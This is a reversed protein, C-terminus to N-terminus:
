RPSRASSVEHAVDILDVASHEQGFLGVHYGLEGAVVEVHTTSPHGCRRECGSWHVPLTRRGSPTAGLASTADHRVDTLSRGCGPRGACATAGAWPSGASTVFGIAGLQALIAATAPQPVHPIVVGRWPTLRVSRGGLGAVATVARWQDASVRGLQSLVSLSTRGARDQVVGLQPPGPDPNTATLASGPPVADTDQLRRIILRPADPLEHVRWVDSGLERRVWLFAEAARATLRAAASAPVSVPTDVEGLRLRASGDACAIATIDPRLCVV